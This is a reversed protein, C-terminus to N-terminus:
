ITVNPATRTIWLRGILKAREGPYSTVTIRADATGGKRVSLDELYTGSRLCGTEGAALSTVLKGATEYPADATGAASDSGSPSAVKNCTTDASATPAFLLAAAAAVPAVAAALTSTRTSPM